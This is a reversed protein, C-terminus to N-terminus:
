LCRDDMHIFTLAQLKKLDSQVSGPPKQSCKINISVNGKDRLGEGTAVMKGNASIELNKIFHLKDTSYPVINGKYDLAGFHGKFSNSDAFHYVDRGNSELALPMTFDFNRQSFVGEASFVPNEKKLIGAKAIRLDYESEASFRFNDIQFDEIRNRGLALDAFSFVIRLDDVMFENSNEKFAGHINKAQLALQPLINFQELTGIKVDAKFSESFAQELGLRHHESTGGLTSLMALCAGVLVVFACLIRIIWTTTKSFATKSM